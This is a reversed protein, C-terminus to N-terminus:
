PDLAERLTESGEQILEGMRSLFSGVGRRAAELTDDVREGTSPRTPTGNGRDEVPAPGTSTSTSGLVSEQIELKLVRAQDEVQRLLSQRNFQFISQYKETAERWAQDEVQSWRELYCAERKKKNLLRLVINSNPFRDLCAEARDRAVQEYAKLYTKVVDIEVMERQSKLWEQFAPSRLVERCIEDTHAQFVQAPDHFRYNRPLDKEVERQCSRNMVQGLGEIWEFSATLRGIASTRHERLFTQISRAETAKELDFFRQIEKVYLPLALDFLLRSESADSVGMAEFSMASIARKVESPIELSLCNFQSSVMWGEGVSFPGPIPAERNDIARSACTRWLERASADILASQSFLFDQHLKQSLARTAEFGNAELFMKQLDRRLNEANVLDNPVIRDVYAQIQEDYCQKEDVQGYCSTVIKLPETQKSLADYFESLRQYYLQNERAVKIHEVVQRSFTPELKSKFALVQASTRLQACGDVHNLKAEIVAQNLIRDLGERLCRRSKIDVSFPFLSEALPKTTNSAIPKQDCELATRFLEPALLTGVDKEFQDFLGPTDYELQDFAVEKLHTYILAPVKKKTTEGSYRYYAATDAFHEAPSTRAYSRVFQNDTLTTSWENVTRRNAEDFYEKLTWQGEAKWRGVQSYYSGGNERGLKYDIQHAIEHTVGEYIFGKDQDGWFSLCGDNLIIYGNSWALGCVGRGMGEIESTKPVRQIEKMIPLTKFPTTLAHSMRWFAYLEDRTFLYDSLPYSKGNYIGATPSKQDYVKNKMSLFYGMKMYWLYSTWGELGDSSKYISNVVCVADRCQSYDIGNPNRLDGIEEGMARLFKAQPVPLTRLDLHKWRGSIKPGTNLQSEYHLAERKVEEVSFLESRCSVNGGGTAPLRSSSFSKRAEHWHDTVLFKSEKPACAAVLLLPWLKNKLM